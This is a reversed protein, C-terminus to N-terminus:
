RILFPFVLFLCFNTLGHALTVGLISRTRLTVFGFLLAVGFVFAVDLASQYGLHLVAFVVAMYLLGSLRGLGDIFAKQMLGRFIVEELFGTFVVLILGPLWLQQLTFAAVLPKPRLILYEMYGLGFGSLGFLLQLPWGSLRLGIDEPRIETYRAVLFASLLLPAGILLYWIYFIYNQLPMSLSIIRILPALSLTVLMSRFINNRSLAGHIFLGALVLAHCLVGATPVFLTTLTEALTILVLYLLLIRLSAKRDYPASETIKGVRVKITRTISALNTETHLGTQVQIPVRVPSSEM